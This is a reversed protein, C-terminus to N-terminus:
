PKLKNKLEISCLYSKEHFVEENEMLEILEDEIGIANAHKMISSMFILSAQNITIRGLEIHNPIYIATSYPNWHWRELSGQIGYTFLWIARFLEESNHTIAYRRISNFCEDFTKALRNLAPGASFFRKLFGM